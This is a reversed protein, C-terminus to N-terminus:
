AEISWQGIIIFAHMGHNKRIVETFDRIAEEHMGNESYALGRHYVSPTLKPDIELARTYDRIAPGYDKMNLFEFAM